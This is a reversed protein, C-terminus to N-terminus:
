KQYSATLGGSKLNPDIVEIAVQGTASAWIVFSLKTDWEDPMDARNGKYEAYGSGKCKLSITGAGGNWLMLPPPGTFPNKAKPPGSAPRVYINGMSDSGNFNANFNGLYRVKQVGIFTVQGEVAGRLWGTEKPKQSMVMSGDVVITEDGSLPGAASSKEIHRTITGSVVITRRFTSTQQQGTSWGGAGMSAKPSTGRSMEDATSSGAQGLGQMGIFLGAIAVALAIRTLRRNHLMTDGEEGTMLSSLKNLASGM